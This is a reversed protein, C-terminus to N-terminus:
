GVLSERSKWEDTSMGLETQLLNNVLGNITKGNENAYNTLDSRRGKPILICISDYAKKKYRQTVEYTPKSM